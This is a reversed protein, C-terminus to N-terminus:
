LQHNILLHMLFKLDFILKMRSVFVLLDCFFMIWSSNPWQWRVVHSAASTQKCQNRTPHNLFFPSSNRLVQKREFSSFLPLDSPVPPPSSLFPSLSPRHPPSSHLSLPTNSSLTAHRDHSGAVVQAASSSSMRALEQKREPPAPCSMSASLQFFILLGNPADGFHPCHDSALGSPPAV